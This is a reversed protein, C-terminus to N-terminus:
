KGETMKRIKEPDFKPKHDEGLLGNVEQQVDTLQTYCFGRFEANEYIGRMLDAYREYFEEANKAGSNYGWSDGKTKSLMAIGGFETLLVPQGSYSCGEAM